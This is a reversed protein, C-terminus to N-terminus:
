AVSKVEKLNVHFKAANLPIQASFYDNYTLDEVTLHNSKLTDFHRFM